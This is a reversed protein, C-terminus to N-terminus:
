DGVTMEKTALIMKFKENIITLEVNTEQNYQYFIKM